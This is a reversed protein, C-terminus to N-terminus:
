RFGGRVGCAYVYVHGGETGPGCPRETSRKQRAPGVAVSHAHCLATNPIETASGGGSFDVPVLTRPAAGGRGFPQKSPAARDPGVAVAPINRQGSRYLSIPPAAGAREKRRPVHERSAVSSVCLRRTAVLSSKMASTRRVRALFYEVGDPRRADDVASGYVGHACGVVTQLFQGIRGALHHLPDLSTLARTDARPTCGDARSSGSHDPSVAARARIKDFSPVELFVKSSRREQRADLQTTRRQPHRDPPPGRDHITAFAGVSGRSRSSRSRESFSGAPLGSVSCREPRHLGTM